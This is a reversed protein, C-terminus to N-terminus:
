PEYQRESDRIGAARRIARVISAYGTCRCLHGCIAERIQDEDPNEIRDLLARATLILGPTCFGCQVAGEDIFAQQVPDLRGNRSLGEITVISRDQAQVALILCSNVPLGDMLVTCAGCQGKGCGEKTGTHGLHDRILELLTTGPPVEAQSPQGNVTLRVTETPANATM